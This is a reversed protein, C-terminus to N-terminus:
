PEVESVTRLRDFSRAFTQEIFQAIVHDKM